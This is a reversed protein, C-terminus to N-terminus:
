EERKTVPTLQGLDKKGECKGSEIGNAVVGCNKCTAGMRYSGGWDHKTENNGLSVKPVEVSVVKPIEAAKTVMDATMAQAQHELLINRFHELIAQTSISGSDYILWISGDPQPTFITGYPARFAIGRQM